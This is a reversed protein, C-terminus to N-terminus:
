IDAGSITARAHLALEPDERRQRKREARTEARDERPRVTKEKKGHLYTIARPQKKVGAASERRSGPVMQSATSQTSSRSLSRSDSRKPSGAGGRNPSLPVLATITDDDDGEEAKSEEDTEMPPLLLNSNSTAMKTAKTLVMSRAAQENNGLLDRSDGEIIVDLQKNHTVGLKKKYKDWALTEPAKVKLDAQRRLIALQKDREKKEEETLKDYESLTPDFASRWCPCLYYRLLGMNRKIKRNKKAQIRKLKKQEQKKIKLDAEEKRDQNRRKMKNWWMEGMFGAMMQQQLRFAPEFLRPFARHIQAFDNFDLNESTFTLKMWSAKVNGRVTTGSKINHVVNVLNNLDDVSFFGTKDQDFVFFCFKLIEPPEFFCYTTVMTLFDSFNIEGEHEIDLLELLVDTLLNRNTEISKFLYNLSVLGSKERDLKQFIKWFASVDKPSLHFNKIVKTINSDSEPVVVKGGM